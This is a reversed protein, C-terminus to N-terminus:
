NIRAVDGFTPFYHRRTSQDGHEKGTNRPRLWWHWSSRDFAPLFTSPRSNRVCTYILGIPLPCVSSCVLKCALDYMQELQPRQHRVFLSFARFLLIVSEEEEELQGCVTTNSTQM